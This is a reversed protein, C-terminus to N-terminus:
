LRELGLERQIAEFVLWFICNFLIQRQLTPVFGKYFSKWGERKFTELACFTISNRYLSPNNMLRTRVVNIPAAVLAGIIGCAISGAFQPGNGAFRTEYEPDTLKVFQKTHDYASIGAANIVAARVISTSLGTYFGLFGEHAAIKVAADVAGSYRKQLGALKNRGDAQLRVRIVDTPNSFLQATAGTIAGALARKWLACNEGTEGDSFLLRRVDSYLGVSVGANFVQRTIAIGAGAYLSAFGETRVVHIAMKGFSLERNNLGIHKSDNITAIAAPKLLSIPAAVIAKGLENQLQMRTTLLDLPYTIFECFSSCFSAVYFRSLFKDISTSKEM